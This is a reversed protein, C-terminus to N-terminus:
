GNAVLADIPQKSISRPADQYGLWHSWRTLWSAVHCCVVPFLDAAWQPEICEGSRPFTDEAIGHHQRDAPETVGVRQSPLEHVVIHPCDGVVRVNSWAGAQSADKTIVEPPFLHGIVGAVLGVSWQANEGELLNDQVGAHEGNVRPCTWDMRLIGTNHTVPHQRTTQQDTSHNSNSRM